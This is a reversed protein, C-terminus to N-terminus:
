NKILNAIKTVHSSRFLGSIPKISDEYKTLFYHNPKYKLDPDEHFKSNNTTQLYGIFQDGDFLTLTVKHTLYNELDSKRIFMTQIEKANTNTSKMM